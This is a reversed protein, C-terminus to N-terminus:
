DDWSEWDSSDSSDKDKREGKAEKKEGERREGEEGGEGEGGGVREKAVDREGGFDCSDGEEGREREGRVEGGEGVEAIKLYEWEGVGNGEPSTHSREPSTHSIESPQLDESVCVFSDSSESRVDSKIEVISSSVEVLDDSLVSCPVNLYSWITHMYMTRPINEQICQSYM